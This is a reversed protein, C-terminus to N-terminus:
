PILKPKPVPKKVTESLQIDERLGQLIGGDCLDHDVAIPLNEDLSVSFVLAPILAELARLLQLLEDLLDYGANVSAHVCKM